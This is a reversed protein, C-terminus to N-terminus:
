ASRHRGLGSARVIPRGVATRVAQASGIVRVHHQARTIATYFLERTLLPSDPDPLLLSVREFQSGQARHVTMAHVTQVGSLRNPSILLPGAARAFAAIVGRDPHDVVVGTDGNFLNVEYDNATALLPRGVYWEEPATHPGDTTATWRQIEASWRAIGYPGRRHACLLRHRQLASLAGAVDGVRAAARLATSAAVIDHRLMDLLRPSPTEGADMEVFEVDTRQSRLIGVVRDPEEANVAAALEAIGGGFRHVSTLRVIGNRFADTAPEGPDLDDAVAGVQDPVTASAPASRAVLDGLVAGAEVSALQDPDGVLVLRADPRVAELLRAMLSLSVMSPEDVIVVDHPLRNHRDHRFRSHSDPRRGLLRHLTSAQAD